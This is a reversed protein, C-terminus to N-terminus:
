QCTQIFKFNLYDDEKTNEKNELDLIDFINEKEDNKQDDDIETKM